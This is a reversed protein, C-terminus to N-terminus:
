SIGEAFSQAIVDKRATENTLLRKSQTSRDGGNDIFDCINQYLALAGDISFHTDVFERELESSNKSTGPSENALARIHKHLHVALIWFIEFNMWEANSKITNGPHTRYRVLPQEVISCPYNEAVRVAFDWDHCFRLPNMMGVKKIVKAEFLMNSTTSIFNSQFLRNLFINNQDAIELTPNAWAPLMSQWGEKVGLIGGASDILRLWSCSFSTKESEMVSIMDEFRSTEFIDDSNLIALYQGSCMQLGRNIAADAGSNKQFVVTLRNDRYRRLISASDDSSGDDIIILELDTLSQHLVSRLASEIYRGHNFSPIVVSVLPTM